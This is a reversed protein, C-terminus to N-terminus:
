RGGGKSKKIQPIGEGGIMKVGGWTAPLKGQPLVAMGEIVQRIEEESLARNFILVEDILGKFFFPTRPKLFGVGIRLPETNDFSCTFDMKGEAKLVGDVYVRIFEKGKFTVAVHTWRSRRLVNEAKVVAIREDPEGKSFVEFQLGLQKGVSLEYGRVNDESCRSIIVNCPEMVDSFIWAMLTAEETKRKPGGKVEVYGDGSFELALGYKGRTWGANFIVGDTHCGSMDHAVKGEGENFPLHLLLAKWFIILCLAIM